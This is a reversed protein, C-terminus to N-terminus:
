LRRLVYRGVNRDVRLHYVRFYPPECNGRLQALLCLAAVGRVYGVVSPVPELNPDICRGACFVLVIWVDAGSHNRLFPLERYTQHSDHTHCTIQTQAVIM